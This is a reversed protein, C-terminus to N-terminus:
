VTRRAPAAPTQPATGAGGYPGDWGIKIAADFETGNGEFYINSFHLGQVPFGRAAVTRIVGCSQMNKAVVNSVSVGRVAGGKGVKPICSDIAIADDGFTGVIDSITILEAPGVIHIGDQNMKLGDQHFRLESIQVNRVNELTMAWFTTPGLGFGKLTLNEVNYFFLGDALRAGGIGVVEIDHNGHEFDNNTILKVYRDGHQGLSMQAGVLLLTTLSPLELAKQLVWTGDPGPGDPGIVLVRQGACDATSAIAEEIKADATDGPFQAAYVINKCAHSPVLADHVV